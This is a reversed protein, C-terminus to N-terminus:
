SYHLQRGVLVLRCVCATPKSYQWIVRVCQLTHSTDVKIISRCSVCLILFMSRYQKCSSCSSDGSIIMIINNNDFNASCLVAVHSPYLLRRGAFEIIRRCWYELALHLYMTSTTSQPRVSHFGGLCSFKILILQFRNM